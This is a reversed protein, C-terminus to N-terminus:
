STQILVLLLKRSPPHWAPGFKPPLRPVCRQLKPGTPPSPSHDFRITVSFSDASSLVGSVYGSRKAPNQYTHTGVSIKLSSYILLLVALELEAQM